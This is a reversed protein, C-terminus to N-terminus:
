EGESHLDELVEAAHLQNSFQMQGHMDASLHVDHCFSDPDM